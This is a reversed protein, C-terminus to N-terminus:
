TLACFGSACDAASRLHVRFAWSYLLRAIRRATLAASRACHPLAVDVLNSPPALTLYSANQVFKAFAQWKSPECNRSGILGSLTRPWYGLAARTMAHGYYPVSRSVIAGTAKRKRHVNSDARPFYPPERLDGATSGPFASQGLTCYVHIETAFIGYRFQIPKAQPGGNATCPQVWGPSQHIGFARGRLRIIFKRKVYKRLKFSNTARAHRPPKCWPGSASCITGHHTQYRRPV